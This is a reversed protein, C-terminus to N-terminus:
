NASSMMGDIRVMSFTSHHGHWGVLDFLVFNVDLPIQDSASLSASAM